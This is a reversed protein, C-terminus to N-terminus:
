FTNLGESILYYMVYLQLVLLIPGLTPLGNDLSDLEQKPELGFFTPRTFGDQIDDTESDETVSNDKEDDRDRSMTLLTTPTKITLMLLIGCDECRVGGSVTLTSMRTRFTTNARLPSSIGDVDVLIMLSFLTLLNLLRLMSTKM